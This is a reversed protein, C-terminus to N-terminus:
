FPMVNGNKDRPMLLEEVGHLKVPEDLDLAFEYLQALLTRWGPNNAEVDMISQFSSQRSPLGNVADEVKWILRIHKEIRDKLMQVSVLANRLSELDNV